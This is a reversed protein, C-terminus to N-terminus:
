QNASVETQDWSEGAGKKLTDECKLGVFSIRFTLCLLPFSGFFM